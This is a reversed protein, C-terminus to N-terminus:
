LNVIDLSLGISPIYSYNTGTPVQGVIQIHESAIFFVFSMVYNQIRFIFLIM